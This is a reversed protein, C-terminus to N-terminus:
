DATQGSEAFHLLGFIYSTNFSIKGLAQRTTKGDKYAEWQAALKDVETRSINRRIGITM